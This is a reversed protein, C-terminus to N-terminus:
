FSLVLRFFDRNLGTFHICVIFPHVIFRITAQRCACFIRTHLNCENHNHCSVPVISIKIRIRIKKRRIQQDQNQKLKIAKVIVKRFLVREDLVPFVPFINQLDFYFFIISFLSYGHGNCNCGKM